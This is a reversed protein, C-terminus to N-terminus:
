LKERIINSNFIEFKNRKGKEKKYKQLIHNNKTIMNM